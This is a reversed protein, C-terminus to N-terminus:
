TRSLIPFLPAVVSVEARSIERLGLLRNEVLARLQTGATEEASPSWLVVRALFRPAVGAIGAGPADPDLEVSASRVLGAAVVDRRQLPVFCDRLARRLDEETFPPTGM